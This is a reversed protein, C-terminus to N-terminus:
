DRIEDFVLDAALQHLGGAAHKFFFHLEAFGADGAQIPVAIGNKTELLAGFDGAYHHLPQILARRARAFFDHRGAGAAMAFANKSAVPTRM